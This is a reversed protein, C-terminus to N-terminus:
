REDPREFTAWSKRETHLELGVIAAVHFARGIEISPKGNELESVFRTGVGCLAALESQRLGHRKRQLRIQRGFADIDM